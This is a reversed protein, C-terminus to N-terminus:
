ERPEGRPAACAAVRAMAERHVDRLDGARLRAGGAALAEAVRSAPLPRVGAAKAAAREEAARAADIREPLEPEGYYVEATALDVAGPVMGVVCGSAADWGFPLVAVEGVFLVPSLGQRPAALAPDVRLELLLGETYAYPAATMTWTEPRDMVFPRAWVVETVPVPAASASPSSLLALLTSTLM